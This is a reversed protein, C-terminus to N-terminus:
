HVRYALVTGVVTSVALFALLFAYMGRWMRTVPQSKAHMSQLERTFLALAVVLLVSGILVGGPAAALDAVAVILTGVNWLAFEAVSYRLVPVSVSARNAIAILGPGLLLQAVGGVLGLYAALWWGHAFPTRSNIIATVAAAILFLVGPVAFIRGGTYIKESM